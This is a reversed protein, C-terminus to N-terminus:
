QTLKPAAFVINYTSTTGGTGVPVSGGSAFVVNPDLYAGPQVWVTGHPAPVVTVGVWAVPNFYYNSGQGTGATYNSANPTGNNYPQFLPMLFTSGAYSEITSVLSNKMGTNGVWNWDNARSTLPILNNAVLGNMDSQSLGNTVWGSSYSEGAHSGDLSLLGFNGPSKISPYVQIAPYGNYTNANGDPDLGTSMFTNWANVDYTLPLVKATGLLTTKLSSFVGGYMTAAASASLNRTSTGLVPGFFLNLAGNASSDRRMTVKITNPFGSFTTSYSGSGDTFGFEIDSANLVLNKVGGATHYSAYQIAANRANTEATSLSTAQQAATRNPLYYEVYGDMLSKVGALAAADAANKLESETLVMWGIDVGFAVMGLLFVLLLAVLPAVAGRRHTKSSAGFSPCVLIDTGGISQGKQHALCEQRAMPFFKKNTVNGTLGASCRSVFQMTVGRTSVDVNNGLILDPWLWRLDLAVLPANQRKPWLTM